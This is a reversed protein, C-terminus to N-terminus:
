PALVDRAAVDVTATLYGAANVSKFLGKEVYPLM